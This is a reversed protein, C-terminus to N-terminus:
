HNPKVVSEFKVATRPFALAGEKDTNALRKLPPSSKGSPALVRAEKLLQGSMLVHDIDDMRDTAPGPLNDTLIRFEGPM